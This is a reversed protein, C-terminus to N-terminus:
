PGFSTFTALSTYTGIERIIRFDVVDKADAVGVMSIGGNWLLNQTTGNIQLGTISRATSTQHIIVTPSQLVANTNTFNTFNVVVDSNVRYLNIVAPQTNFDVSVTTVANTVSSTFEFIRSTFLGGFNQIYDGEHNITGYVGMGGDAVIAGTQTSTSNTALARVGSRAELVGGQVLM